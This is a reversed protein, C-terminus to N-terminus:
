SVSVDASSPWLETMVCGQGGSGFWWCWWWWNLWSEGISLVEVVVDFLNAASYRVRDELRLITSFFGPHYTGGLSKPTHALKPPNVDVDQRVISNSQRVPHHHTQGQTYLAPWNGKTTVCNFNSKSYQSEIASKPSM